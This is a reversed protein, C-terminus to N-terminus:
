TVCEGEAYPGSPSHSRPFPGFYFAGDDGKILDGINGFDDFKLGEQECIVALRNNTKNIFLQKKLFPQNIVHNKVSTNLLTRLGDWGVTGVIIQLNHLAISGIWSSVVHLESRGVSCKANQIIPTRESWLFIKHLPSIRRGDAKRVDFYASIEGMIYRFNGGCSILYKEAFNDRTQLEVRHWTDVSVENDLIVQPIKETSINGLEDQLQFKKDYIRLMRDSGSSGLYITREKGGRYSYTLGGKTSTFLRGNLSLKDDFDASAIIKRLRDFENGEYNVFDFAFDCRTVKAFPSVHFWFEPDCLAVSFDYGEIDQTLSYIYDIGEGSIYLRIWSFDINFIDEATEKDKYETLKCELRVGQSAWVFTDGVKVDHKEYANKYVDHLNTTPISLNELISIISCNYLIVSYTDIRTYIM